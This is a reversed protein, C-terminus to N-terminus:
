PQGGLLARAAVAVKTAVPLSVRRDRVAAPNAVIRGLLRHYIGAMAATCARSRRDLRDLLTLGHRYAAEARDAEFRVLEEFPGAPADLRGAADLRLEVGFRRLDEGPLYVRGNARDEAVDRLINTLQLAVGLEDALVGASAPDDAGFVGVSLRGISGAVARCYTRLEAFCDYHSGRVDMACGDILEGFADLPIPLRRAADGLAVLVPDTLGAPFDARDLAALEGRARQLEVLKEPAGLPGDGIDDIRRAFAYVASLARRKEGPLLRIGYSFNRAARHTVTECHRYAAEVTTPV